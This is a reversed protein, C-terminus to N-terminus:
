RGVEGKGRWRGDIRDIPEVWELELAAFVDREEPTVLPAGASLLRGEKFDMHHPKAGGYKRETVLWRSFDSSGTRITAVCGWTEATAIFLDVQQGGFTFQKYREGNKTLAVGLRALADDLASEESIADGFMDLVPRMVPRAVIEIDGIEPKRRRLSGAVLVRECAPTLHALLDRAIGAAENWSIKSKSM